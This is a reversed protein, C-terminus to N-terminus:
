VGVDLDVQGSLGADDYGLGKLRKLAPHMRDGTNLGLGTVDSV